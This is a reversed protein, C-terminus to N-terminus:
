RHRDFGVFVPCIESEFVNWGRMPELGWDM